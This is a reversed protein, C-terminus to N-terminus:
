RASIRSRTPILDNARQVDLALPSIEYAPRLGASPSRTEYTQSLDRPPPGFYKDLWELTERIMQDRPIFHTGQGWVHKKDSPDAGLLAFSRRAEDPSIYPDLEGSMLLTPVEIRPLANVPDVAPSLGRGLPLVEM